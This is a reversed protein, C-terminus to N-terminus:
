RRVATGAPGPRPGPWSLDCIHGIQTCSPSKTATANLIRKWVRGIAAFAGLDAWKLGLGARDPGIPWRRGLRASSAWAGAWDALSAWAGAWDASSAWAPGSSARKIGVEAWDPRAEAWSPGVRTWDPGSPEGM